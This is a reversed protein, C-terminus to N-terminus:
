YTQILADSFNILISIHRNRKDDNEAEEKRYFIVEKEKFDELARYSTSRSTDWITELDYDSVVGNQSKLFIVLKAFLDYYQKKVKKLKLRKDLLDRDCIIKNM